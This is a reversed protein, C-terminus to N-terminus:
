GDPMEVFLGFLDSADKGTEADTVKISFTSKPTGKYEELTKSCNLM